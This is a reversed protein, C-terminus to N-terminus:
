MIKVREVHRKGEARGRPKSGQDKGCRINDTLVGARRRLIM